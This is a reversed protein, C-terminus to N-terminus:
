SPRGSGRRHELRRGGAGALLLVGYVAIRPRMWRKARGALGALSDYRVLGARAGAAAHREDCADICAACGICELQLGQRIDIGTPCVGVCRDCAVCDGAGPIARGAARSAARGTTASSWRITTPSPPSSAGTPASSSASSSASGPSTSISPARRRPSSSSRAGTAEDPRGRMMAWLAPISVFYALFLHAIAASLLLYVAHKAVRRAVKGAGWPAEALPRRRCRTARSGASSGGTSM